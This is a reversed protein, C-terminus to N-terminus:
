EIRGDKVPVAMQNEGVFQFLCEGLGDGCGHAVLAALHVPCWITIEDHDHVAHRLTILPHGHIVRDVFGHVPDCDRV